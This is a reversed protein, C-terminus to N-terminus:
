NLAIITGHRNAETPDRRYSYYDLPNAYTCIRAMEINQPLLGADTLQEKSIAWFDFYLPVVQHKHFSPPLEDKYHIFQANSPGLSPSIAVKLDQPSAGLYVLRDIVKAYINQVSGRWGCHAAAAFHNIPDYFLTAQCDAHKILAATGPKTLILADGEGIHGSTSVEHITTGHVQTLYALHKLGLAGRMQDITPNGKRTFSANKIPLDFTLWKYIETEHIQM